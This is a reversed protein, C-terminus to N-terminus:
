RSYNDKQDIERKGKIKTKTLGVILPLKAHIQSMNRAELKM